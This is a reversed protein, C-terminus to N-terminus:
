DDRDTAGFGVSCRDFSCLHARMRLPRRSKGTLYDIKCFISQRAKFSLHHLPGSIEASDHPFGNRINSRTASLSASLPVGFLSQCVSSNRCDPGSCPATRLTGIAPSPQRDRPAHHSVTSGSRSYATQATDAAPPADTTPGKSLLIQHTFFRICGPLSAKNFSATLIGLTRDSVILVWAARFATDYKAVLHHEDARPRMTRNPQVSPQGMRLKTWLAARDNNSCRAAISSEDQRLLHRVSRWM